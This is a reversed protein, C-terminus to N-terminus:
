TSAQAQKKGRLRALRVRATYWFLGRTMQREAAALWKTTSRVIGIADALHEELRVSSENLSRSLNKERLQRTTDRGGKIAHLYLTTGRRAGRTSERLALLEDADAKSSPKSALKLYGRLCARAIEGNKRMEPLWQEYEGSLRQAAAGCEDAEEQSNLAQNTAFVKSAQMTADAIHKEADVYGQIARLYEPEYDLLGFEPPPKELARRRRVEKRGLYALDGLFILTAIVGVAISIAVFPSASAHPRSEM